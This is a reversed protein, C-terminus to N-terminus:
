VMILKVKKDIPVSHEGINKIFKPPTKLISINMRYHGRYGSTRLVLLYEFLEPTLFLRRFEANLNLENIELTNHSIIMFLGKKDVIKRLDILKEKGIGELIGFNSVFIFSDEEVLELASILEDLTYIKGLFINDNTPSFKELLEFSFGNTPELHYATKNANLANSLSSYQLVAHSIADTTIVGAISSEEIFGVLPSIEEILAVGSEKKATPKYFMIRM